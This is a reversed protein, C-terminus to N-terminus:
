RLEVEEGEYTLIVKDKFIAEVRVKGLMQGRKVFFTRLASTDEIMADPNKSWSIGVLRYRQTEATIAPVQDRSYSAAGAVSPKTRIKFIDRQGVKETYYSATDKLISIARMSATDEKETWGDIKLVPKRNLSVVGLFVSVAFYAALAAVLAMLAANLFRIDMRIAIAGRNRKLRDKFFALRGMWAGPSFFSMGKHGAAGAHIGAKKASGTEILNLLQKEPTVTREQAM